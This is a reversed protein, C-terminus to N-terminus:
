RVPVVAVNDFSGSVSSTRLGVHTGSLNRSGLPFAWWLEPTVPDKVRVRGTTTDIRIRVPLTFNGVNALSIGRLYAAPIEIHQVMEMDIPTRSRYVQAFAGSGGYVRPDYTIWLLYSDGNGWARGRSPGSMLVHVGFAAHGDEAGAHYRADFRIEVDGTQTASTNIKARPATSSAQLLRGTAGSWSGEGVTWGAGDFTFTQGVAFGVPLLTLMLATTLIKRM